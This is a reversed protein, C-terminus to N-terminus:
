YRAGLVWYRAGLGLVAASLALLAAFALTLTVLGVAPLQMVGALRTTLVGFTGNGGIVDIVLWCAWALAAALAAILAPRSTSPRLAGWLAATAPVM